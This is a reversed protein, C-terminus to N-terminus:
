ELIFIFTKSAELEEPSKQPYAGPIRRCAGRPLWFPGLLVWCRVACSAFCFSVMSFGLFSCHFVFSCLSILPFGVFWLKFSPIRRPIRRIYIYIYAEPLRNGWRHASTHATAGATTEHNRENKRWYICISSQHRWRNRAM